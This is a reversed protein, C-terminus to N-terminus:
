TIDVIWAVKCVEPNEIVANLALLASGSIFPTDEGPYEFKDLLERVELEVLEMLEEDDVMDEKNLFVVM